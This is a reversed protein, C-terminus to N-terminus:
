TTKSGTDNLNEVTYFIVIKWQASFSSTDTLTEELAWAIETFDFSFLSNRHKSLSFNGESRNEPGDQERM